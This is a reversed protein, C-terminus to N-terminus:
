VLGWFWGLGVFWLGALLTASAAPWVLFDVKVDTSEKSQRLAVYLFLNYVVGVFATGILFLFSRAIFSLIRLFAKVESWLNLRPPVGMNIALLGFCVFAIMPVRLAGKNASLLRSHRSQYLLFALGFLIPSCFGHGIVIIVACAYGVSYGSVIGLTVVGM